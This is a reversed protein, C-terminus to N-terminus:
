LAGALAAEDSDDLVKPEVRFRHILSREGDAEVIKLRMVTGILAESNLYTFRKKDVEKDLQFVQTRKPRRNDAQLTCKFDAPVGSSNSMRQEIVLAGEPTIFSTVELSINELGVTLERWVSFRYDRDATIEFDCRVVQPGFTAEELKIGMTARTSEDAGLNFQAEDMSVDWEASPTTSLAENGVGRAPIFIRVSGGIGQKFTNHLLLANDQRLGFVSPVANSAFEMEMRWRAIGEDLGLVFRPMQGVRIVHRGERLEPKAATGWVDITQISDGLYLTEEIPADNAHEIESELNWLVMVVRGDPRRFLWNSSANPLRISGLYKAGGLLRACTRWPLLLEGPTGDANMVGTQGDAVKASGSFPNSVFIGNAGNMKAVLIQKVFDRVRELHRNVMAARLLPDNPDDPNAGEPITNNVEPPAVVVWRQAPSPPAAQFAAELGEANMAERGSMQEFDWTYPGDWTRAHDWRWGIGMRIDQGFRFIQNRIAGIQEVLRDYGVFSTDNDHGLQWWRIRLSLRTIIHDILPTWYSPDSSLLGEIPPPEEHSRPDIARLSPDELIGITEIGRAALQEAFRMIAEGRQEDGPEFWVPIKLMRVGALPLLEQLVNFPLPEDALPLSWGFEGQESEELKERVVALTISRAEGIPVDTDARYMGVKVRYFGWTPIPPHWTTHGEYSSKDSGFGDVIDSALTRSEAIIEGDIQLSGGDGISKNTADLLEFRVEPNQELIGSLSCTVKVDKVNTYVNYRSDTQIRISPLRYLRLDAIAIEAELDGRDGREYDFHLYVRDIDEDIPRFDGLDVERWTGDSTLPMSQEVQRPEDRDNHFVMRVRAAGHEAGSVRVNFRLKYSFKPMVHIPPSIATASAGDARIVLARGPVAADETPGIKISAYPPHADDTVRQWRDPWADYNIDWDDNFPCDFVRVLDSNDDGPVPSQVPQSHAMLPKASPTKASRNHTSQAPALQAPVTAGGILVSMLVTPTLRLRLLPSRM